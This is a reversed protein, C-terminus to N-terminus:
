CKEVRETTEVGCKCWECNKLTSGRKRLDAFLWPSNVLTDTFHYEDNFRVCLATGTLAGFAVDTVLHIEEGPIGIYLIHNLGFPIEEIKEWPRYVKPGVVRYYNNFNFEHNAPVTHWGDDEEDQIEDFNEIQVVKGDKFAQLIALQEDITM